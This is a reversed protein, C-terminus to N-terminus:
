GGINGVANRIMLTTAVWVIITIIQVAIWFFGLGIGWKAFGKGGLSKNKKIQNLAVFGFVIAFISVGLIGLVLSAIAMGSNKTGEAMIIYTKKAKLSIKQEPLM